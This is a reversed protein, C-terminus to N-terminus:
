DKAGSRVKATRHTQAFAICVRFRFPDWILHVHSGKLSDPVLQLLLVLLLWSSFWCSRSINNSRVEDDVKTGCALLFTSDLHVLRSIQCDINGVGGNIVWINM